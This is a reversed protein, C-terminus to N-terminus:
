SLKAIAEWTERATKEWSFLRVRALGRRQYEKYLTQDQLLALIAQALQDPQNAPAYSVADGGVERFAPIDSVVAPVGLAMAELVPLGFGEYLSPFVFVQAKHLIQALENEGVYGPLIIDSRYPHNELEAGINEYGVGRSGVLVLQLDMKERVKTFAKLLAVTNKKTELRGISLIYKKTIGHSSITNGTTSLKVKEACVALPTVVISPLRKKSYLRKLEAVNFQSSTLILAAKKIIRKNMWILYQRGLFNYAKSFVLFASDHIMVVTKKPTFFSILQAPALFIDPPHFLLELSLRVQSWLKSLPWTLVKNEWNAPLVGLSGTLLHKSYLIVRETAPITQKLHEILQFSYEEVGTRPQKEAHMAEIGIIM